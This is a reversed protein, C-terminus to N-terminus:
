QLINSTTMLNLYSFLFQMSWAKERLLMWNYLIAMERTGAMLLHGPRIRFPKMYGSIEKAKIKVRNLHSAINKRSQEINKMLKESETKNLDFIMKGGKYTAIQGTPTVTLEKVTPLDTKEEEPNGPCTLINRSFLM